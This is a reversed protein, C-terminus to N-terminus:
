KSRLQVLEAVLDRVAPLCLGETYFGTLKCKYEWMVETESFHPCVRACFPVGDTAIFPKSPLHETAAM